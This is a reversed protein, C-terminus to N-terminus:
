IATLPYWKQITKVPSNMGKTLIYNFAFLIFTYLYKNKYYNYMNISM